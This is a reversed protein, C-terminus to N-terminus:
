VFVVNIASDAMKKLGTVDMETRAGVNIGLAVATLMHSLDHTNKGAALQGSAQSKELLEQFIVQISAVVESVFDTVVKEHSDLSTATNIIFCGKPNNRGLTTEILHEFFLEVSEKASRGRQLAALRERGISRNYERISSEFLAKKDGFTEYLSSRSLGTAALLDFVKTADFGKQWFVHMASKLAQEENFNKPRAM